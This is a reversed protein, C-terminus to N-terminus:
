QTRWSVRSKSLFFFLISSCFCIWRLEDHPLQSYPMTKEQYTTINKSPMLYKLCISPFVRAANNLARELWGTQSPDARRSFLVIIKAHVPLHSLTLHCLFYSSQTSSYRNARFIAKRGREERAAIAEEQGEQHHPIPLPTNFRIRTAGLPIYNSVSCSICTSSKRFWYLQVHSSLLCGSRRVCDKDVRESRHKERQLCQLIKVAHGGVPQKVTQAHNGGLSLCICVHNAFHKKSQQQFRWLPLKRVTIKHSRLTKIQVYHKSWPTFAGLYSAAGQPGEASVQVSMHTQQTNHLVGWSLGRLNNSHPPCWRFLTTIRCCCSVTKSLCTSCQGERAQIGSDPEAPSGGEM